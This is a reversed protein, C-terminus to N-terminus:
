NSRILGEGRRIEHIDRQLNVILQGQTDLRQNQLAVDMVVKNLAKLDEKIEVIDGKFVQNDYLQRYYFGFAAFLLGGIALLTSANLTWDVIM